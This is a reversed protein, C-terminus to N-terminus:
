KGKKLRQPKITRSFGRQPSAGLDSIRGRPNNNGAFNSREIITDIPDSKAKAIPTHDLLKKNLEVNYMDSRKQGAEVIAKEAPDTFVNRKPGRLDIVNTSQRSGKKM